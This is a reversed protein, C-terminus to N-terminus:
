SIIKVGGYYKKNKRVGRVLNYIWDQRRPSFDTLSENTDTVKRFVKKPVAVSPDHPVDPGGRCGSLQSRGRHRHLGSPAGRQGSRVVVPKSTSAQRGGMVWHRRGPVVALWEPATTSRLRNGSHSRKSLRPRRRVESSGCGFCSTILM